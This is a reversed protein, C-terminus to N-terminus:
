SAVTTPTIPLPPPPYAPQSTPNLSPFDFETLPAARLTGDGRPWEREQGDVLLRVRSVGDLATGTIVIQAVAAVQTEGTAEFFDDSLDVVLTGDPRLEARRLETARPIATRLRREAEETTVGKLLESLLAVPTPSVDRSAGVLQVVDGTRTALFFVKPSAADGPQPSEPDEIDLSVQDEAAIDRPADDRPVGCGALLAVGAVALLRRPRM